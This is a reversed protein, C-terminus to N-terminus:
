IRIDQGNFEYNLVIFNCTSPNSQIPIDWVVVVVLAGTTSFIELYGFTGWLVWFYRLTGILVASPWTQDPRTQWPWVLVIQGDPCKTWWSTKDAHKWLQWSLIDWSLIDWSLVDWSLIDTLVFRRSTPPSLQNALLPDRCVQEPTDAPVEQKDCMSTVCWWSKLM